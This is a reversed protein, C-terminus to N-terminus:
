GFSAAPLSGKEVLSQMANEFGSWAATALFGGVSVRRVGLKEFDAAQMNPSVLIVNVPKPAVAKVIAEIDEPKSTGPAYLVDAGAQSYAKLRKVTADIDTNGLLFGETRGVLMISPDVANIAERAAKLREVAVPIDYLENGKRDEISLAAIGTEAARRVNRGVGAVDDAFGAEFDANVPLRTAAVLDRLNAITEDVSATLDGKGLLLSLGHSTSAIAKFGARELAKAEGATSANPLVFFSDHLERFAARKATSDTM